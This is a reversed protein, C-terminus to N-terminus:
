SPYSTEFYDLSLIICRLASIAIHCSLYKRKIVVKTLYLFHGQCFFFFKRFINKLFWNVTEYECVIQKSNIDNLICMRLFKNLM